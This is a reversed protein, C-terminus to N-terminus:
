LNIIEAMVMALFILANKEIQLYVVYAYSSNPLLDKRTELNVSILFLKRFTYLLYTCTCVLIAFADLKM